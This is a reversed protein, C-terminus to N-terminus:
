KPFASTMRRGSRFGSSWRRPMSNQGSAVRAVSGGRLSVEATPGATVRAPSPAQPSAPVGSPAAEGTRTESKYRAFVEDQSLDLYRAYIRLFGRIQVDGCPFAALDGAELAELFRARIRTASEAEKLTSGKAERARCLWAGLTEVM